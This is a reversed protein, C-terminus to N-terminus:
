AWFYPLVLSCSNRAVCSSLKMMYLVRTSSSPTLSSGMRLASSTLSVARLMARTVSMSSRLSYM